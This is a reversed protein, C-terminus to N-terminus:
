RGNPPVAELCLTSSLLPRKVAGGTNAAQLLSRLRCVFSQSVRAVLSCCGKRVLRCLSWPRSSYIMSNGLRGNQTKKHLIQSIAPGVRSVHGLDHADYPEWGVGRALYVTCILSLTQGSCSDPDHLPSRSVGRCTRKHGGLNM